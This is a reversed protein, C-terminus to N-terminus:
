RPISISFHPVERTSAQRKADQASLKASGDHNLINNALNMYLAEFKPNAKATSLDLPPLTAM